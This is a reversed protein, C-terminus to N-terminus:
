HSYLLLIVLFFLLGEVGGEVLDEELGQGRLKLEGGGIIYM